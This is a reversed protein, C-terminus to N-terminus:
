NFKRFRWYTFSYDGHLFNLATKIKIRQIDCLLSSYNDERDHSILCFEEEHVKTNKYYITMIGKNKKNNPTFSFDFGAEKMSSILDSEKAREEDKTKLKIRKREIENIFTARM